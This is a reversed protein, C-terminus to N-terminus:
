YAPTSCSSSCKGQCFCQLFEPLTEVDKETTTEGTLARIRAELVKTEKSKPYVKESQGDDLAPSASSGAKPKKPKAEKIELGRSRVPVGASPSPGRHAPTSSGSGPVALNPSATGSASHKKAIGGWESQDQNKIYVKGNTGFQASLKDPSPARSPVRSTSASPAKSAPKSSSAFTPKDAQRPPVVPSPTPLSPFRYNIYKDTFAVAPASSGIFEQHTLGIIQCISCVELHRKLKM